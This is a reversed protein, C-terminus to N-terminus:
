VCVTGCASFCQSECHTRFYSRYEEKRPQGPGVLELLTERHLRLPATGTRQNNM